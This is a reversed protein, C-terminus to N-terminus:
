RSLRMAGAFFSSLNDPSKDSHQDSLIREGETDVPLETHLGPIMRFAGGETSRQLTFQEGDVTELSLLIRDYGDRQEITRLPTQGGLMFDIVEVIFSKGTESAGYIVNLGPGFDVQAPERDSGHFSLHRLRLGPM